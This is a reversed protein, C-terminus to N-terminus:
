GREYWEVRGSDAVAVVYIEPNSFSHVGIFVIVGNFNLKITRSESKGTITHAIVENALIEDGERKTFIIKSAKIELIKIPTGAKVRLLKNRWPVEMCYDQKVVSHTRDIISDLAEEILTYGYANELPTDTIRYKGNTITCYPSNRSNRTYLSPFEYTKIL